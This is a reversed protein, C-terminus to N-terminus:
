GPWDEVYRSEELIALQGAWSMCVNFSTADLHINRARSSIRGGALDVKIDETISLEELIASPRIERALAMRAVEALSLEGRERCLKEIQEALDYFKTTEEDVM